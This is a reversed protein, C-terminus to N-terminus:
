QLHMEIQTKDTQTDRGKHRWQKNNKHKHCLSYVYQSCLGPRWFPFRRGHQGVMAVPLLKVISICIM